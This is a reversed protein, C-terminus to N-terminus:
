DWNRKMPINTGVRKANYNSHISCSNFVLVIFSIDHKVLFRNNAKRLHM